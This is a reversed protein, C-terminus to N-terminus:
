RLSWMPQEVLAAEAQKSLLWDIAKERAKADFLRIQNKIRLPRLMTDLLKALPHQHMLAVYVTPHTPHRKELELGERIATTMPLSGSVSDVLLYLAGTGAAQTYLRELLTMLTTVTQRSTEEFRIFHINEGLAQYTISGTAVTAHDLM